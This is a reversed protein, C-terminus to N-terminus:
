IESLIHNLLLVQGVKERIGRKEPQLRPPM